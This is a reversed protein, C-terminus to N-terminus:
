HLIEQSYKQTSASDNIKVANTKDVIDTSPKGHYDSVLSHSEETIKNKSVQTHQVKPVV